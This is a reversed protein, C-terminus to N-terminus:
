RSTKPPASAGAIRSIQDRVDRTKGVLSLAEGRLEEAAAIAGQQHQENERSSVCAALKAVASAMSGMAALCEELAKEMDAPGRAANKPPAEPIVDAVVRMDGELQQGSTKAEFSEKTIDIGSDEKGLKLVEGNKLDSVGKIEGKWGIHRLVRANFRQSAPNNEDRTAWHVLGHGEVDRSHHNHKEVMKWLLEEGDLENNKFALMGAVHSGNEMITMFEDRRTNVDMQSPEDINELMWDIMPLLLAWDPHSEKLGMMLPSWYSRHSITFQSPKAGRALLELVCESAGGAVAAHLPSCRHNCDGFDTLPKEPMVPTGEDLLIKACKLNSKACAVLLARMKQKLTSRRAVIALGEEWGSEACKESPSSRSYTTFKDCSAAMDTMPEVLRLAEIWRMDIIMGIPTRAGRKRNSWTAHQSGWAMKKLLWTRKEAVGAEAIATELGALDGLDISNFIADALAEKERRGM